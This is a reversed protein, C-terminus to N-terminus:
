LPGTLEIKLYGPKCTQEIAFSQYKNELSVTHFSSIWFSLCFAFGKIDEFKSILTFLM